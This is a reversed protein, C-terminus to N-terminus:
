RPISVRDDEFDGQEAGSHCSSCNQLGGVSDRNFVAQSIKRHKHQIYSLSSIREPIPANSHKMIKRGLKGGNRDAANPLLYNAAVQLESEDLGLETGFHNGPEGLMKRWSAEPLLNAVYAVHCSGCSAKYEAPMQYSYGKGHKREHKRKDHAGAHDVLYGFVGVLSMCAAVILFKVFFTTKM